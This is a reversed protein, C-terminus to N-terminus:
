CNHKDNKFRNKEDDTIEYILDKTSFITSNKEYTLKIQFDITQSDLLNMVNKLMYCKKQYCFEDLYILEIIVVNKNSDIEFEKIKTLSETTDHFENSRNFEQINDCYILLFSLPYKEFSIAKNGLKSWIKYDHTLIALAILDIYDSIETIKDKYINTLKDALIVSSLLSHNKALLAKYLTGGFNIQENNLNNVGQM